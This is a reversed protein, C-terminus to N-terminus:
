IARERCETVSKKKFMASTKFSVFEDSIPQSCFLTPWSLKTGTEKSSM